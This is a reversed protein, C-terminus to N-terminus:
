KDPGLYNGAFHILLLDSLSADIQKREPMPPFRGKIQNVPPVIANKGVLRKHLRSALLITPDREDCAYIRMQLRSLKVFDQTVRIVQRGKASGFTKGVWSVGAWM